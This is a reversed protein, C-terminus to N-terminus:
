AQLVFILHTNKIESLTEVFVEENLLYYRNFEDELHVTWEYKFSNEGLYVSYGGDRNFEVTLRTFCFNDISQYEDSFDLLLQFGNKNANMGFVEFGDKRLLDNILGHSVYDPAFQLEFNEIVYEKFRKKIIQAFYVEVDEKLEAYKEYEM